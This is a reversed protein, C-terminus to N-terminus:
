SQWSDGVPGELGLVAIAHDRTLHEDCLTAITYGDGRIQAAHNAPRDCDKVMCSTWGTKTDLTLHDRQWSSYCERAETETPHPEHEACYGLPYGGKDNLSVYHWGGAEGKQRATHQRM